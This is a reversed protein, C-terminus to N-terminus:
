IINGLYQKLEYQSYKKLITQATKQSMKQDKSWLLNRGFRIKGSDSHPFLIFEQISKDKEEANLRDIEYQIELQKSLMAAKKEALDIDQSLFLRGTYLIDHEYCNAQWINPVVIYGNNSARICYIETRNEPESILSGDPRKLIQPKEYEIEFAQPMVEILESLPTDIDYNMVKYDKKITISKIKSM